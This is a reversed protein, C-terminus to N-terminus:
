SSLIITFTIYQDLTHLLGSCKLNSFYISSDRHLQTRCLQDLFNPPILITIDNVFVIKMISELM